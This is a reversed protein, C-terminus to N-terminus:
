QVSTRQPTYFIKAESLVNRGPRKQESIRNRAAQSISDVATCTLQFAILTQITNVAKEETDAQCLLGLEPCSAAFTGAIARVRIELNTM